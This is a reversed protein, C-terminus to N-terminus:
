RVPCAGSVCDDVGGFDAASDRSDPDEAWDTFDHDSHFITKLGMPRRLRKRRLRGRGRRLTDSGVRQGSEKGGQLTIERVNLTMEARTGDKGEYTRVGANGSVTVSAGKALYQALKEGREGWMACSVWLTNREGAGAYEDVAVSFNTVAKGSGTHRTEADRGIRGAITLHENRIGKRQPAM